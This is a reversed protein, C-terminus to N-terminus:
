KANTTYSKVYNRWSAVDYFNDPQRWNKNLIASTFPLINLPLFPNILANAGLRICPFFGVHMQPYFLYNQGESWQKPMVRGKFVSKDARDMFEHYIKIFIGQWKIQFIQLVIWGQLFFVQRQSKQGPRLVFWATCGWSIALPKLNQSQPLPPIASDTHRFCFTWVPQM